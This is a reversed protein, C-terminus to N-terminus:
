LKKLANYVRESNHKDIKYFFTDVRKRYKADMVCNNNITKIIEEVLNEYTYAIPGFGNDADTFFESKDYLQTEFFQKVDYQAYIVPKKLYAFDFVVSSYDSVMLSGEALATKYDYPFDKVKFTDNSEFDVTQAALAPHLYFEGTMNKGRLASIVREDNMLRNYFDHYASHKFSSDYARAGNKNTRFRVLDKRYTPALILKNKPNNELLDFRPLGTLAVSKADYYYPDELISQHELPASTVFLKINKNFRNLWASLDHRIVGHQLFVFDFKFLDIFHDIQRFFPNTVEIDAQSSIVKDSLLFLLKYKFGDQNIVDGYEQVRKYDKSKKSIVFYVDADVKTKEKVYRFFAEGNDGAAMGRDSILWIPRRKRALYIHYLFRLLLSRPIMLTAEAMILLPKSIEFVKARLSLMTVNRTRLRQLQDKAAQLRLNKAIQFMYGLEYKVHAKKSYPVVAVGGASHHFLRRERVQYSKPLKSFGSFQEAVIEIPVRKGSITIGASLSDVKNNSAIEVVVEFAGGDDIADGLFAKTKQARETPSFNFIGKSTQFSYYSRDSVSDDSVFGEIKYKDTGQLHIFEIHVRAAMQPSFLKENKYTYNRGDFTLHDATAGDHKMRLFFMKLTTDFGQKALIVKDDIQDVIKRITRKYQRLEKENLVSQNQQLVRWYLDSLIEYQMFKHVVGNEDRWLNMMHGYALSPVVLYFDRNKAQGGIASSDDTRKRYNYASTALVGYSKRKVLVESLFKADETIKLRTDFTLGKLAATRFICTPLHLLPNDPEADLDIVRTRQFKYNSPHEDIIRDFFKIKLAVVDVRHNNEDLFETADRFAHKSWVDDSDFFTVYRGSTIKLGNNRAASVGQNKQRIYKINDPYKNVYDQCIESSSDTSGDDVLVLEINQEFGISQNTISDISQHLYREVNYVPMVVSIKPAKM